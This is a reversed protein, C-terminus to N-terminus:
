VIPSIGKHYVIGEIVPCSTFCHAKKAPNFVMSIAVLVPFAKM